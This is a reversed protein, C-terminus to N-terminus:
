KSSTGEWLRMFVALGGLCMLNTVLFFAAEEIPLGLIHWGITYTTSIEWIGLGIAIRDAVWLYGTPIAFSWFFTRKIDWLASGVLFWMGSLVPAAWALILGLYTSKDFYLMYAGSLAIFIWLGAGLNRIFPYTKGTPREVTNRSYVHYFFLGTLIPQLLFFIYEEIPVYGIIGIVRENGYGWIGRYVLYNDWPTTYIFAIGMIWLLYFIHKGKTDPINKPLFYWLLVIVPVIFVFHFQLYTM